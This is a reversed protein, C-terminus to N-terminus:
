SHQNEENIMPLNFFYHTTGGGPRMDLPCRPSKGRPFAALWEGGDLTSTLSHM